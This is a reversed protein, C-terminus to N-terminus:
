VYGYVPCLYCSLIDGSGELAAARVPAARRRLLPACLGAGRSLAGVAPRVSGGGPSVRFHLGGGKLPLKRVGWLRSLSTHCGCGGSCSCKVGGRRRAWGGAIWKGM